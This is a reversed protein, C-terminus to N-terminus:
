PAPHSRRGPGHGPHGGPMGIGKRFDLAGVKLKLTDFGRELLSEAQAVMDAVDGMWILGNIPM